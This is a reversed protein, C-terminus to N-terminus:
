QGQATSCKQEILCINNKNKREGLINKIIINICLPYVSNKSITEPTRCPQRREGYRKIINMSKAMRLVTSLDSYLMTQCFRFRKVSKSKASSMATTASSSFMQWSIVVLSSSCLACTPSFILRSFVFATPIVWREDGCWYGNCLSDYFIYLSKGVQSTYYGAISINFCINVSSQCFCCCYESSKVVHPSGASYQM